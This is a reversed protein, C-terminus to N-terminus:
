EDCKDSRQANTAVTSVATCLCWVVYIIGRDAGHTFFFRLCIFFILPVALFVALDPHRPVVPPPPFKVIIVIAPVIRVM